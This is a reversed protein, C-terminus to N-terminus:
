TQHRLIHFKTNSPTISLIWRIGLCEILCPSTNVLQVKEQINKLCFLTFTGQTSMFNPARISSYRNLLVTM